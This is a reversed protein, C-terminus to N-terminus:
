LQGFDSLITLRESAIVLAVSWFLPPFVSPCVSNRYCFLTHHFEHTSSPSSLRITINDVASSIERRLQEASLMWTQNVSTLLRANELVIRRQQQFGQTLIENGRNVRGAVSGCIDRTGALTTTINNGRRELESHTRRVQAEVRRVQSQLENSKTSIHRILGVQSQKVSTLTENGTRKLQQQRETMDNLIGVIEERYIRDQTSREESFERNEDHMERLHTTINEFAMKVVNSTNGFRKEVQALAVEVLKSMNNVVADQYLVLLENKLQTQTQVVGEFGSGAAAICSEGMRTLQLSLNNAVLEGSEATAVKLLQLQQRVDNTILLLLRSQGQQIVAARDETREFVVKQSEQSRSINILTQLVQSINESISNENQEYKAILEQLQSQATSNAMEMMKGLLTDHSTLQHLQHSNIQHAVDRLEDLSANGAQIMAEMQGRSFEANRSSLKQFENFKGDVEMLKNSANIVIDNIENVVVANQLGITAIANKIVELQEVSHNQRKEEYSALVSQQLDVSRTSLNRLEAILSSPIDEDVPRQKIVDVIDRVAKVDEVISELKHTVNDILSGFTLQHEHQVSAYRTTQDEGDDVQAQQLLLQNLRMELRRQGEISESLMQEMREMREGHERVIVRQFNTAMQELLERRDGWHFFDYFANIDHTPQGDTSQAALALVVFIGIFHLMAASVHVKRTVDATLLRITIPFILPHKLIQSPGRSKFHLSTM